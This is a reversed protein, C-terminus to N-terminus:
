SLSELTSIIDDWNYYAVSSSQISERTTVQGLIIRINSHYAFIYPLGSRVMTSDPQLILSSPQLSLIVASSPACISTILTTSGSECIIFRANSLSQALQALSLVSSDLSIFGSSLATALFQDSNSVRSNFQGQRM